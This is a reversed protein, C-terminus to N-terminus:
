WGSGRLSLPQPPLAWCPESVFARGPRHRRFIKPETEYRRGARHSYSAIPKWGQRSKTASPCGRHPWVTLCSTSTRVKAWVRGEMLRRVGEAEDIAVSMGVFRACSIAVAVLKINASQRSRRREERRPEWRRCPLTRPMLSWADPWGHHWMPAERCRSEPKGHDGFDDNRRRLLTVRL